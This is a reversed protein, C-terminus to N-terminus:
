RLQLFATKVIKSPHTGLCLTHGATFVALSKYLTKMTVMVTGVLMSSGKERFSQMQYQCWGHWWLMMLSFSLATEHHM